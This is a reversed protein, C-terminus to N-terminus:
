AVFELNAIFKLDTGLSLGGNQAFSNYDLGFDKRNIQGTIEFAAKSKGNYLNVGLLEADLEVMRTINRITLNGKIFNIHNNVKQFSTSEFQIFPFNNVDIFDNIKFYTDMQELKSDQQQINLSFAVSADEVQNDQLNVFGKFKNNDGSLYALIAHKSKILVDSQSSDIEWTTKM